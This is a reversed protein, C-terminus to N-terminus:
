LGMYHLYISDSQIGQVGNIGLSGYHVFILNGQVVQVGGLLETFCLEYNQM